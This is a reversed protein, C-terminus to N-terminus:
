FGGCVRLPNKTLEEKIMNMLATAIGGCGKINYQGVFGDCVVIDTDATM